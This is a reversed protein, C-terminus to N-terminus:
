ELIRKMRNVFSQILPEFIFSEEGEEGDPINRM